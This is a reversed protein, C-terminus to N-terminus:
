QFQASTFPLFVSPICLSVHLALFLFVNQKTHIMYFDELHISFIWVDLLPDTTQDEISLTLM